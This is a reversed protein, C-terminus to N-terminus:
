DRSGSAVPRGLREALQARYLSAPAVPVGPSEIIGQPLIEAHKFPMVDRRQEGVCGIAWNASGPPRQILFSKATCNWAVAWGIAWGHGSGMEGRNMLDIGGGEVRCNDLLLGTAWRMHPQISNSGQFTCDLAVNPGAVGGMTAIFFVSDGRVTCRHLLIQSGSIAFDAPKAAGQTAVTHAIAVDEATVRRATAGFSVTNVTDVFAVDRLWADEVAGITAGRFLPANITVSQPPAVVRLHELGVEALRAPPACKVVSAGAPALLSADLCDTLPVDFTLTNQEIRIITREARTAGGAALWTQKKGDRVLGDMGMFKVWAPTVPHLVLVRDGAKFGSADRVNLSEAGAPVYADGVPVRAGTERAAERGGAGLVVAVHASGILKLITGDAGSGSGRLVVGTARLQLPASCAFEGRALLVAGRFGDVLPRQAVEDLAAQIRATADGAGAAVTQRVAVDPLTVGGGRYGASSFDMIRDGRPLTQYILRGNGGAHVWASPPRAPEGRLLAAVLAFAVVAPRM